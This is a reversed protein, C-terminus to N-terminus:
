AEGACEYGDASAEVFRIEGGRERGGAKTGLAVEIRCHCSKRGREVARELEEAAARERRKQVSSEVNGPGEM